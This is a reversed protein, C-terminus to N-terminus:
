LSPPDDTPLCIHKHTKFLIIDACHDHAISTISSLIISSCSLQIICWEVNCLIGVTYLFLGKFRLSISVQPNKTQVDSRSSEARHLLKPETDDQGLHYVEIAKVSRLFLLYHSLQSTLQDLNAQVDSVSYSRSSIESKKALSPTRLPFRFLTGEFPKQFDCGFYQFPEFQHRFTSHLSNGVCKVKLGPQNLTAGPAHSCHPDFIVLHEGSVFTPTDTLHYTSNFGLGFRGTTSVKELKHGHGIRALSKFDSENFTADNGVLLSPGQLPAMRSDLLSETAYTKEDLMIRVVSAGADDANQILESFIPNGDPYMDLITKLRSTLSEAQGFAELSEEIDGKEGFMDDSDVNRTVLSTRLSKVGMKEAVHSSINPHVLRCGVRASVYEPGSLWPVDDNVLYPCRALFGNNDPAFIHDKVAHSTISGEASLLTVLSCSLEVGTDSLANGRSGDKAGEDLQGTEYAMMKLVDVYDSPNFSPKVMFTKLLRSYVRLDQPLQYLYPSANVSTSLAVKSSEVFTKGVWIWKAPLLISRIESAKTEAGQNLRQYLQPILGTVTERVEQLAASGHHHDDDEDHENEDDVNMQLSVPSKTGERGPSKGGNTLLEEKERLALFSESLQFLQRAITEIPLTEEWGLVARLHPNSVSEAVVRFDFSCLWADGELRAGKPKCTCSLGLGDTDNTTKWPMCPHQAKTLVPVWATTRLTYVHDEVPVLEKKETSFMGGVTFIGMGFIGGKSDGEKPKNVDLLEDIKKDLFRLLFKSRMLKAAVEEERSESMAAINKASTLVGDWDMTSRLGISRLFVLIDNRQFAPAPFLTGDLLDTLEKQHPDFLDSPLNLTVSSYDFPKDSDQESDDTSASPIFSVGSPIFNRRALNDAFSPDEEVLSQLESLMELLVTETEAPHKKFLIDVRSLVEFAYFEARSVISVSCSELLSLDQSTKHEVFYSPFIGAPIKASNKIAKYRTQSLLSFYEKNSYTFFIPMSKITDLEFQSASRVPEMSCLYLRLTEREDSSLPEFVRLSGGRMLADIGKCLGARMPRSVYDWFISPMAGIDEFAESDVIHLGLRQLVTCVNEPLASGEQAQSVVLYSLSSLPFFASESVGSGNVSKAPVIAAGQAISSIVDPRVSVYSWFKKLFENTRIFEDSSLDKQHVPGGKFFVPPLIYRLLDPVLPAEFPRVNSFSQMAPHILFERESPGIKTNNLLISAAGAFIDREEADVVIVVQSGPDDKSSSTNNSNSNDESLLELAQELNFKKQNLAWLAQTNNFGMGCLTSIADAQNSNYIRLTSIREDCMPLVNLLNLESSPREATLDHLVYGLLFQCLVHLSPNNIMKRAVSDESLVKRVLAPSSVNTCTNTKCLSKLLEDQCLVLPKEARVLFQSLSMIGGETTELGYRSREPLLIANQPEIWNQENVVKGRGNSSTAESSHMGAFFDDMEQEDACIRLLKQDKSREYLNNVVNDWPAAVKSSPWLSQYTDSFGLTQKLRLLLRVYSPAILDRMLSLNWEARTQGDGTMDVGAQWIDRRNSSLEFFANVMVPLGTQIPLPLFCYALGSRVASASSLAGEKSAEGTSVCAALGGWPVLRLLANKPHGAIRSANGGGLQNCVEWKEVYNLPSMGQGAGTRVLYKTCDIDLSYDAAFEKHQELAQKHRNKDKVFARTARQERSVNSIHCKFRLTPKTAGEEWHSIEMSEVNNLFLLMASAEQELSDLLALGEEVTLARKSLSSTEAQEATRIPLRFLTGAFPKTWDIETGDFHYPSFQDRVQQM